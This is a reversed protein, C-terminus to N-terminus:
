YDIQNIAELLEDMKLHTYIEETITEPTHGVIRQIVLLELGCERARTIFTHRTDHPTHKASFYENLRPLDRDMFNQYNIHTGNPKVAIWESGVDKFGKLLPLIKDHIPITRESQDNKVIDRTLTIVKNELDINESKQSLFENIRMGTYLLVLMLASEWQYSTDWLWKVEDSTFIVREIEAADRKYTVFDSYDKQIYDNEIAYTYVKGMLTKINDKTSSKKPCEDIVKQLHVKRLDRIPTDSILNCYNYAAKYCDYRKKSLNKELGPSIIQWIEGFTIDVKEPDYPNDNFFALAKLAEAQTKYYGIIKRKLIYNDNEKDYETKVTVRVAYPKRRTGSLKYVSGYGNPNKM